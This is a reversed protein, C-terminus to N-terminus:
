PTGNDDGQGSFRFRRAFEKWMLDVKFQLRVVQAIVAIAFGLVTLWTIINGLTIEWVIQM